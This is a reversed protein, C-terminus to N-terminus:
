PRGTFVRYYPEQATALMEADGDTDGYAARIQLGPGYAKIM